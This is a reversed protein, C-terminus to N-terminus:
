KAIEPLYNQITLSEKALINVGKYFPKVEDSFIVKLIGCWNNTLLSNKVSNYFQLTLSPVTLGM